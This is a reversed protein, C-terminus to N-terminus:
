RARRHQRADPCTAFHSRFRDVGVDAIDPARMLPDSNARRGSRELIFTGLPSTGVPVPEADMPIAKGAETRAWIIPAGCTRCASM